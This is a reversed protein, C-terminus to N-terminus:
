ALELGGRSVRVERIGHHLPRPAQRMAASIEGTFLIESSEPLPSARAAGNGDLLQVLFLGTRKQIPYVLVSTAPLTPIRPPGRVLNTRMQPGCQRQRPLVVQEVHQWPKGLDLRLADHGAPVSLTQIQVCM